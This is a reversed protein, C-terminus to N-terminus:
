PLSALLRPPVTGSEELVRGLVHKLVDVDRALGTHTHCTSRVIGGNIPFWRADRRQGVGRAVSAHGLVKSGKGGTGEPVEGGIPFARQALHLFSGRFAGVCDDEEDEKRLTYIALRPQRDGSWLRLVEPRSFLDPPCIPALLSVTQFLGELAAPGPWDRSKTADDVLRSCLEGLWVAGASHAVAHVRLPPEHTRAAALLTRLAVWAEGRKPDALTFAREAEGEFTRWFPQMFERAFTELMSATLQQVGGTRPELRRARDELLESAIEFCGQRWWVFFPYVRAKKLYPILVRAREVMTDLSDLGSEVVILLHDYKETTRLREATAAISHQSCNYTGSTVLRGDKVHLYHGNVLLRPPSGRSLAASTGPDTFRGGIARAGHSGSVGLHLVWGDMVNNQWDDYSWHAVGAYTDRWRSWREGWSNRILFGKEDYGVIAVAHGGLVNQSGDWRIRWRKEAENSDLTAGLQWGDHLKTSVVVVGVENLACHYDLLVHKLRAYLGLTVHSADEAREITFEWDNPGIRLPDDQTEIERCVGNHFFGRLAGRVSSGPLGDDPHEDFARGMEYLMRASVRPPPEDQSGDLVWQRRRLVDVATAVAMGTCSSLYGQDRVPIDVLEAPAERRPALAILRPQYIEDRFDIPDPRVNIWRGHDLAGPQRSRAAKDAQLIAKELAERDDASLSRAMPATRDNDWNM